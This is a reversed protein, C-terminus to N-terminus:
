GGGFARRERLWGSDGALGNGIAPADVGHFAPVGIAVTRGGFVREAAPAVEALAAGFEDPTTFSGGDAGIASCVGVLSEGSLRVAGAEGRQKAFQGVGMAGGETREVAKEDAKLEGVGAAEAFGVVVVLAGRTDSVM